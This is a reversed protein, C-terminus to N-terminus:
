DDGMGGKAPVWMSQGGKEVGNGVGRLWNVRQWDMRKKINRTRKEPSCRPGWGTIESGKKREKPGGVRSHGVKTAQKGLAL